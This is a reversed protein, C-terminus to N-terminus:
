TNFLADDYLYRAAYQAFAFIDTTDVKCARVRFKGGGEGSSPSPLVSRPAM